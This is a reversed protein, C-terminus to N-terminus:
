ASSWDPPPKVRIAVIALPNTPTISRATRGRSPFRHATHSSLQWPREVTRRTSRRRYRRRGVVTNSRGAEIGFRFLSPKAMAAADSHTPSRRGPTRPRRCSCRRSRTDTLPLDGARVSRTVLMRGRPDLDDSGSSRSGSPFPLMLAGEPPPRSRRGEDGEFFDGKDFSAGTRVKRRHGRMSASLADMALRMGGADAAFAQSSRDDYGMGGAEGYVDMRPASSCSRGARNPAGSSWAHPHREPEAGPQRERPRRHDLRVRHGRGAQRGDRPVRRAPRCPGPATRHRRAAPDRGPARVHRRRPSPGARVPIADTLVEHVDHSDFQVLTVVADDGDAQQDAILRNFGGIVDDAISAM